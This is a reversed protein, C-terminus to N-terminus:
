ELKIIYQGSYKSTMKLKSSKIKLKHKFLPCNLVFSEYEGGEGLYNINLKKLDKILSNDLKRGLYSSNLGDAAIGTIIVKFNKILNKLYKESNIQWLPTISKIKLEKCIKEIREFQYKSYLAGSVIGEINYKKIAEKIALKLDKLELEKKAKTTKFILPLNMVKAQKKVLDINPYHFMYSDDKLPKISILCIIKHKKSALYSAYLSDKGGSILSALKM